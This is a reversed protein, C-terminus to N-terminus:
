EACQCFNRWNIKNFTFKCDEIIISDNQNNVNYLIGSFTGKIGVLCSGEKPLMEDIRVISTTKTVSNEYIKQNGSENKIFRAYSTFDGYSDNINYVGVSQVNMIQLRFINSSTYDVKSQSDKYARITYLPTQGIASWECAFTSYCLDDDITSPQWLQDNLVMSFSNLPVLNESENNKKCGFGLIMLGVVLLLRIRLKKCM